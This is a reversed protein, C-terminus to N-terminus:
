GPMSYGGGLDADTLPRKEPGFVPRVTLAAKVADLMVNAVAM